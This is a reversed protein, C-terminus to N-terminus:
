KRVWADDPTQIMEGPKAKDRQVEAFVDEVVGLGEPGLQNQDVIARYIIRRNNNEADVLSRVGASEKLVAVYGRSNEGVTGQAKLSELQSYRAQRGAIAKEVEPTMTKLEYTAALLLGSCVAALLVTGMLIRSIPNTKM